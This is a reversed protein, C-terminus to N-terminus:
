LCLVCWKNNEVGWKETDNYVVKTTKKCVPYDGTYICTHLGCEIGNQEGILHYNLKKVNSVRTQDACCSYGIAFRECTNILKPTTEKQNPKQKKIICWKSNEVSWEGDEDEYYVKSEAKSCCKYGNLSCDSDTSSSDKLKLTIVYQKGSNGNGVYDTYL